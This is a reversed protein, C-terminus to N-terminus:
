GGAALVDPLVEALVGRVAHEVHDPQFRDLLLRRGAEALREAAAANTLLSACASALAEADEGVLLHVGHQADLGECGLPTSVVPVGHAWAELIKVRTGGGFRIPALAVGARALEPAVDPVPGVIEVGPADAVAAPLSDSGRGVIRLRADPLTRRLAPLVETAAYFAADVNPGYYYTGVLLVTPPRDPPPTRYAGGVDAPFGNPVVHVDQGGGLRSRDLESCVVVADAQQLARRQAREWLPLELRRQLRKARGTTLVAPPLALFARAKVTEVDDLDIIVRAGQALRPLSLAHDLYGFWVLDYEEQSWPRLARRVRGWRPVAVQWPVARLSCALLGGARPRQGPDVLAARRVEVDPPLFQEPPGAPALVVVDVTVDLAVIARLAAAARRRKGGDAPWPRDALTVLVRPRRACGPDAM